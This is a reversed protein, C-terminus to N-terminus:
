PGVSQAMLIIEDEALGLVARLEAEPYSGRVVNKLGESACALAVGQAACGAEFAACRVWAERAGRRGKGEPPVAVYVLNAAAEAVYPQAGSVARWDGAARCVLAHAEPDYRWVGAADLVYVRLDRRNLATPITWRGDTRNVGCAAWLLRSWTEPGIAGGAFDRASARMGLAGYVGMGGGRPAEPLEVVDGAAVTVAATVTREAGGPGAVLTCLGVVGMALLGAGLWKHEM